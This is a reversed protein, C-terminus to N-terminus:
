KTLCSGRIESSHSARTEKQVRNKWTLKTIGDSTIGPLIVKITVNNKTITLIKMLTVVWDGFVLDSVEIDAQIIAQIKKIHPARNSYPLIKNYLCQAKYSVNGLFTLFANFLTSVNPSKTETPENRTNLKIKQFIFLQHHMYPM